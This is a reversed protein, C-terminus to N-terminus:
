NNIYGAHSSINQSLLIINSDAIVMVLLCLMNVGSFLSFNSIICRWVGFLACKRYLYLKYGNYAKSSLSKTNIKWDM